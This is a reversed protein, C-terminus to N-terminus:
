VLQNIMNYNQVQGMMSEPVVVTTIPPSFLDKPNTNFQKVAGAMPETSMDSVSTTAMSNDPLPARGKQCGDSKEKQQQLWCYGGWILLGAGLVFFIKNM